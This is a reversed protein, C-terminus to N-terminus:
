IEEVNVREVQTETKSANISHGKIGLKEAKGGTFTFVKKGFFYKSIVAQQICWIHKRRKYM